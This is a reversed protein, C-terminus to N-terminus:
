NQEDNLKAQRLKRRRDKEDNWSKHYKPNKKRFDRPYIGTKQENKVM